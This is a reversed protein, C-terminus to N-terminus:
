RREIYVVVNTKLADSVVSTKLEVELRNRANAPTYGIPRETQM